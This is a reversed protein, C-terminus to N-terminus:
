KKKKEGSRRFARRARYADERASLPLPDSLDFRRPHRPISPDVEDNFTDCPCVCRGSISLAAGIIGRGICRRTETRKEKKKKIKNEM